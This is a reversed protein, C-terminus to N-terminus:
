GTAEIEAHPEMLGACRRQQQQRPASTPRQRFGFDHASRREAAAHRLRRQQDLGVRGIGDSVGAFARLQQASMGKTRDDQDAIAGMQQARPQKKTEGPDLNGAAGPDTRRREHPFDAGHQAFGRRQRAAQQAGCRLKM